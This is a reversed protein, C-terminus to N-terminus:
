DFDPYVYSWGGATSRPKLPTRDSIKVFRSVPVPSSLAEVNRVHILNSCPEGNDLSRYIEKEEPQFERIHENLESLRSEPIAQKEEWGVVDAKYSVMSLSDTVSMYLTVPDGPDPPYDALKAISSSSYPQLYCVIESDQRQAELIEKIVSEYVGNLYLAYGVGFDAADASLGLLDMADAIEPRLKWVWHGEEENTDGATALAYTYIPTGDDYTPLEIPLEEYVSKGLLGYQLNAAGYNAYGAARALRSATIEQGPAAYHAKLMAIHGDTLDDIIKRLATAYEATNPSAERAKAKEQFSSDVWEKLRDMVDEIGSGELETLLHNKRWARGKYKGKYFASLLKHKRYEETVREGAM